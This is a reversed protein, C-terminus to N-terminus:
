QRRLHWRYDFRVRAGMLGNDVPGPQPLRAVLRYHRHEGTALSGLHLTPMAVLGGRYVLKGPDVTLDRIRLRLAGALSAGGAGLRETLHTRSLELGAPAGLNEITVNGAVRGGPGLAPAELIAAEGRSDAIRLAGAASAEVGLQRNDGLQPQSWALAAVVLVLMQALAAAVVTERGPRARM